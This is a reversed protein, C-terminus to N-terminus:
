SVQVSKLCKMRNLLVLNEPDEMAETFLEPFTKTWVLEM